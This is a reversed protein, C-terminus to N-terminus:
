TLTYQSLANTDMICNHLLISELFETLDQTQNTLVAITPGLLLCSMGKKATENGQSNICILKM